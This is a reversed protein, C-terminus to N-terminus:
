VKTRGLIGDYEGSITNDVVEFSVYNNYTQRYRGSSFGIKSTDFDKPMHITFSIGGIITDWEQGILDFYFEDYEKNYDKGFNYTYDIEYEHSGHVYTDADGIKIDINGDSRSTTYHESVNIDSVKTRIRSSTGDLREILASQPLSRVIGHKYEDVFYAKIKEKVKYVNNVGVEIDINYSDIVYDYNYRERNKSPTNLVSGDSADKVTDIFVSYRAIESVDRGDKVLDLNSMQIFSATKSSTATQSANSRAIEEGLSDYFIVESLYNTDNLNYNMVKGDIGFAQISTKSYDHFNVDYFHMSGIWFSVDKSDISIDTNASTAYVNSVFPIFVHIAITAVALLM